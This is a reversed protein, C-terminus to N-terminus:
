SRPKARLPGRRGLQERRAVYRSKPGLPGIGQREPADVYAIPHDLRGVREFEIALENREPQRWSGHVAHGDYGCTGMGIISGPPLTMLQAFHAVVERVNYYYASTHARVRLRDNFWAAAGLDHPSGVEDATTIVPGIPGCGDAGKDCTALGGMRVGTPPSDLHAIKAGTFPTRTDNCITYGFVYDMAKEAGVDHAEPGVVIGLEMDSSVTDNEDAFLAEKHGIIATIPRLRTAPIQHPPNPPRQHAMVQSNGSIFPYFPPEPIPPQWLIQEPDRLVTDVWGGDITRGFNWITRELDELSIVAQRGYRAIDLMDKPATLTGWPGTWPTRWYIRREQEVLLAVADQVGMVVSEATEPRATLIGTRFEGGELYTLLKM